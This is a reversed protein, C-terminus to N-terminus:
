GKYGITKSVDELWVCTDCESDEGVYERRCMGNSKDKEHEYSVNDWEDKLLSEMTKIKEQMKEIKEQMEKVMKGLRVM